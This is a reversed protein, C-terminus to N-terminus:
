CQKGITLLVTTGRRVETGAEPDQDCVAPEGPLLEDFFGGDDEVKAQLGADALRSEAEEVELGGVDPVEVPLERTVRIATLAPARGRASAIVDIVNAGPDLPVDAVFEDGEVEAVSGNVRVASGAPAVSGAVRVSDTRVVAEDAPERVDLVVPALARQAPPDDGGGCGAVALCATVLVLRARM